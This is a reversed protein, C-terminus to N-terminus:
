DQELKRILEAMEPRPNIKTRYESKKIAGVIAKKSENPLKQFDRQLESLEKNTPEKHPSPIHFSKASVGCLPALQEAGLTTFVQPYLAPLFKILLSPLENPEPPVNDSCPQEKTPQTHQLAEPAELQPNDATKQILQKVADSHELLLWFDKIKLKKSCLFGEGYRAKELEAIREQKKGSKKIESM